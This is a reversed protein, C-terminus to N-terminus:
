ELDTKIHNSTTSVSMGHNQHVTRHPSGGLEAGLFVHLQKSAQCIPALGLLGLVPNGSTMTM